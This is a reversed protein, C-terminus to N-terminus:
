LQLLFESQNVSLLMCLRTAAEQTNAEFNGPNSFFDRLLKLEKGAEVLENHLELATLLLRDQLLKEAIDNYSLQKKNGKGLPVGSTDKSDCTIKDLSM